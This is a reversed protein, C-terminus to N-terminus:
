NYHKTWVPVSYILTGLVFSPLITIATYAYARGRHGSQWMAFVEAIFTSVTSLCGLFGFQIGSVVISCRKTNVAKSITALAAMLCAALINASLTGIPLWRLREKWGLGRGNYRALYWRLWVGPPGVFCGLWLVAGNTLSDLKTRAFVGSLAWLLGWLLLMVTIVMVHQIFSHVRLNKLSCGARRSRRDFWGSFSRQLGEASSVGVLISIGVMSMGIIFGVVAQVWHGKSSLELMKQNWGSFTTLSGLYGTTLGVVLHESVDRLQAKFVFGFWGMLFSGLMNSPLDLYLAGDGAFALPGGPGFLKQLLYRTFEGLIGFVALFILYFIYDLRRPLRYLEDKLSTSKQIQNKVTSNLIADTALPSIIEEMLPSVPSSLSTDHSQIGISIILADDSFTTPGNDDNRADDVRDDFVATDGKDGVQAMASDVDGLIHDALEHSLRISDLIRDGVDRSLSISGRQRSGRSSTGSLSDQRAGRIVTEDSVARDGSVGVRAATENPVDEVKPSISISSRRWSSANSTTGFSASRMFNRQSSSDLSLHISRSVSNSPADIDSDQNRRSSEHLRSPNREM